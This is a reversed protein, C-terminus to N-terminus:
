LLDFLIVEADSDARVEIPGAQDTSLADGEALTENGITVRGKVVQFWAGRGPALDFRLNTGVKPRAVYINADQLIPLSQERGDNSAVLVWEGGALQASYDTQAYSPALGRRNPIIWIQLFHAAESPSPNYESHTVGSGASMRQVEGPNIVARNGMSDQHELQGSIVYSLIEMDAHPHRGFGGGGAVRDENIVRLSRFGMHAPDYFSAFSFTHRSKLWGHDAYGRDNARRVVQM